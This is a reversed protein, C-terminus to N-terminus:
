LQCIQAFPCLSCRSKDSTPTFNDDANYIEVILEYLYNFFKEKYHKIDLIKEEGVSLIPAIGDKTRQKIYLLAPSVHLQSQNWQPSDAVILAYLMTQLFYDSHKASINEPLFIDEITNINLVGPKGTKYDVIRLLAKGEHKVVDLRDIIGGIEISATEGQPTKITLKTSVNKESGLVKFPTLNKDAKLLLTLYEIIIRRYIIQIGNYDHHGHQLNGTKFLEDDFAQDVLQELVSPMLLRDIDEAQIMKKEKALPEYALQAARHFILGFLRSDKTLDTNDPSKLKVVYQYYFRLQCRLYTNIATPSLVKLDHLRRMVEETKEISQPMGSVTADSTQIVERKIQHPSEVLMQLMFRSMEQTPGKKGTNGNYVITIDGARQLLRHFYYSYIAVKHDITTLGYAKRIAYPIFSSDNVGKPINGENCSLLLLHDFDLNRTELVGMIQLGIAPEGHFPITTSAILQTLLRRLTNIDVAMDGSLSLEELRNFLTYMKFVSEQLFADKIDSVHLGILQLIKSIWRIVQLNYRIKEDLQLDTETSFTAIDAFLLQLDEDCALQQRSPYYINKKKLNQLIEISGSSIYQAYPHRLAKEVFNLRYTDSGRRIGKTQLDFLITCLSAIPTQTLPYGTTINVKIKEKDDKAPLGHLVPQLINEDCMVIATRRGCLLRGNQPLWQAVYRAQINNTPANVFSIRKEKHFNDYIEANNSDLENPFHSQYLGIYYGADNHNQTSSSPTPMYFRDFDWYFFARGDNKLRQFLTQEVKQLMNFGIFVYKEHEWAISENNAVERYLAGEYALGQSALLTNFSTYIDFFHKWLEEFRRKLETEHGDNFTTFFKKLMTRQEESLYSTDDYEHLDRLNAFVKEANAMNKDIDDFDALLLQGWGYFHDLTESTNTCRIFTKHLDCVLKIPDAVIRTSYKRFFDSITIYTPSWIPHGAIKVLYENLFLSARKNPFVVVMRSLNTGHKKILDEAVYELFSKM